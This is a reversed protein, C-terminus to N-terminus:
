PSCRWIFQRGDDGMTATCAHTVAVGGLVQLKVFGTLERATKRLLTVDLVAVGSRKEYESRIESKAKEVDQDSFGPNVSLFYWVSAGVLLAAFLAVALGSNNKQPQPMIQHSPGADKWDNILIKIPQWSESDAEKALTEGSISGRQGIDRLQDVSVPGYVGGDAQYYYSGTM